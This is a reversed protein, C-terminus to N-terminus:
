LLCGACLRDLVASEDAMGDWDEAPDTLIIGDSRRGAEALEDADFPSPPTLVDDPTPETTHWDTNQGAWHQEDAPDPRTTALDPVDALEVVLVSTTHYESLDGLVDTLNLYIRALWRGRAASKAPHVHYGPILSELRRLAADLALALAAASPRRTRTPKVAVAPLTLTHM